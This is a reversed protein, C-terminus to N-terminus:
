DKPLRELERLTRQFGALALKNEDSDYGEAILETMIHLGRECFQQATRLRTKQMMLLKAKALLVRALRGEEDVAEFISGANNLLLAAEEYRGLEMKLLALEFSIDAHRPTLAENFRFVEDYIMQYFELAQEPQGKQRHWEGFRRCLANWQGDRKGCASLVQFALHLKQRILSKEDEETLYNEDALIELLPNLVSETVPIRSSLTQLGPNLCYGDETLRLWSRELQKGRVTGFEGLWRECDVPLTLGPLALFLIVLKRQQASLDEWDYITDLFVATPHDLQYREAPSLDSTRFKKARQAMTGARFECEEAWRELAMHDTAKMEREDYRCYLKVCDAASFKFLRVTQYNEWYPFPATMLVRIGSYDHGTFASLQIQDEESMSFPISDLFLVTEGPNEILTTQINKISAEEFAQKLGECVGESCDVWALYWDEKSLRHLLEAAVTTKGSKSAGTLLIRVPREKLTQYLEDFPEPKFFRKGLSVPWESSTLRHPDKANAKAEQEIAKEELTKIM